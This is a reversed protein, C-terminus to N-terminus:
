VGEGMAPFGASSDSLPNCVVNIGVPRQDVFLLAGHFFWNRFMKFLDAIKSSNLLMAAGMLLQLQDKCNGVATKTVLRHGGAHFGFPNFGAYGINEDGHWLVTKAAKEDFHFGFIWFRFQGIGLFVFDLEEPLITVLHINAFSRIVSDCNRLSIQSDSTQSLPRFVYFIKLTTIKPLSSLYGIKVLLLM